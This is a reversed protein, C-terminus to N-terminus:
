ADIGWLEAANGRFIAVVDADSLRESWCAWKLARLHELGVLVPHVQLHKEGWVPKDQYLWIFSDAVAVSRGRYHSVHFDSGYLLKRVGMIRIIAALAMPECNASSDFYLNDLGALAPLGRFNHEPQFGRAAHALILKIGPYRGCYHRIWHQNVPDAVAHAKVMHLTITWKERDAVAVIREPLYDPIDAEWTPTRKALVHYCKLGSLGLRRVEGCVWEPDDDPRVLFSGRSQPDCAVQRAIWESEHLSHEPCIEPMFHGALERGPHLCDILRRYENYGMAVGQFCAPLIKRGHAGCSFEDSWLHCHADFIRRPVFSALERQFFAKDEENAAFVDSLPAPTKTGQCHAPSKKM